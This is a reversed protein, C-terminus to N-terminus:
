QAFRYGVLAHRGEGVGTTGPPDRLPQPNRRGLDVAQDGGGLRAGDIVVAVRGLIESTRRLGTM